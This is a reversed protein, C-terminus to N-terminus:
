APATQTRRASAHMSRFITGFEQEWQCPKTRRVLQNFAQQRSQSISDFRSPAEYSGPGLSSASAARSQHATVEQHDRRRLSWAPVSPLRVRRMHAISDIDEYQGPSLASVWRNEPRLISKIAGAEGIRRDSGFSFSPASSSDTLGGKKVECRPDLVVDRDLKYCGPELHASAPPTHSGKM